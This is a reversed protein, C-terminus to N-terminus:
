QKPPQLWGGVAQLPTPNNPRSVWLAIATPPRADPPGKVTATFLGDTGADLPQQRYELVVFDHHLLRGRNEGANVPTERNFGLLALHATVAAEEGRPSYTIRVRDDGTLTARLRGGAEAEGLPISGRRHGARWERGDVVFGPTYVVGHGWLAAYRQQRHSFRSDAFRDPWGLRDWYDVHFAIPVLGDWLDPHNKLSSLWEDAPPCSSCGESTYLELLTVRDGGSDLERPAGSGALPFLLLCLVFWRM